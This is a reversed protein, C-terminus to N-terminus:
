PFITGDDWILENISTRDIYNKYQIPYTNIQHTAIYLNGDIGLPFITDGEYERHLLTETVFQEDIKSYFIYM